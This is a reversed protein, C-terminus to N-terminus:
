KHDRRKEIVLSSYILENWTDPVGPLCWHSCDQYRPRKGDLETLHKGYVSPHGDKRFESLRTINLVTVPTHMQHIVDEVIQMKVPYSDLFTENFIPQTEGTCRGGSNWQGGRFHAPSYGRYFVQTKAPNLNEDIWKGWTTLARRFATLADLHGYVENGEQYYDKGKATKGHTWWHGTNFVLIHARKWRPATKDIRDIMLTPRTKGNPRVSRGERVLFHSRCFEVTCNYDMFKFIYYGRGKTIRYGHTEFMRSKNSLGERLLCLMSEFQNRNMSDGVLMLRKGRLRELFDTANFRPLECDNAQWRWKQYDTDSRGNDWRGSCINCMTKENEALKSMHTDVANRSNPSEEEEKWPDKVQSIEVPRVAMTPSAKSIQSDVANRSKPSEEEEKEPDKVQPIEVPRVAMTPSGEAKSFVVSSINSVLTDEEADVHGRREDTEAQIVGIDSVPTASPSVSLMSQETEEDKIVVHKDVVNTITSPDNINDLPLLSSNLGLTKMEPNEFISSFLPLGLWLEKDMLPNPNVAHKSIICLGIFLFLLLVILASFTIQNKKQGSSAM